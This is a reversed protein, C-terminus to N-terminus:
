PQVGLEKTTNIWWDTSEKAATAFEAGSIDLIQINPDTAREWYVDEVRGKDVDTRLSVLAPRDNLDNYTQQGARSLYWNVLLKAANPHPPNAFVALNRTPTGSVGGGLPHPFEDVPLGLKKAEVLSPEGGGPFLALDFNGRALADAYETAAGYAIVKVDQKELLQRHWDEGLVIWARTKDDGAEGSAVDGIVIRGTWRPDLINEYTKLSQLDEDSVNDTNYWIRIANTSVDFAYNTVYQRDIDETSWPVYDVQWNASRDKVEDLVFLPELPQFAKANLLRTTGTPGQASVDVTYRGQSREALIRDVAENGSGAAVTVKIGFNKAFQDYVAKEAEITSSGLTVVLEGEERAAAILDAWQPDTMMDAHLANDISWNAGGSSGGCAALTACLGLVALISTLKRMFKM